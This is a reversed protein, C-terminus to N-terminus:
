PVGDTLQRAEAVKRRHHRFVLREVADKQADALAAFAIFVHGDTFQRQQQGAFELPLSLCADFRLRLLIADVSAPMMALPIVAGITNFRILQRPPLTAAPVLLRNVIDVLATVKADLRLVEQMLPHDEDSGEVRHEELATIAALAVANNESLRGFAAAPLPWEAPICDVHWRDECAVRESFALWAEDQM